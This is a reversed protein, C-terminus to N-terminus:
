SGLLLLLLLLSLLLLSLIYINIIIITTIIIIITVIIIIITIVLIELLQSFNVVYGVKGKVNNINFPLSATRVSQKGHNIEVFCTKNNYNDIDNIYYQGLFITLSM